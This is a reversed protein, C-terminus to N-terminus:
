KFPCGRYKRKGIARIEWLFIIKSHSKLKLGSSNDGCPGNEIAWNFVGLSFWRVLWYGWIYPTICWRCHGPIYRHRFLLHSPTSPSLYNGWSSWLKTRPTRDTWTFIMERRSSTFILNKCWSYHLFWTYCLNPNQDWLCTLQSSFGILVCYISMFGGCLKIKQVRSDCLDM